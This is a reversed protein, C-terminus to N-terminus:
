FRNLKSKLKELNLTQKPKQKGKWIGM